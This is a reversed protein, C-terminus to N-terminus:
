SPANPDKRSRFDLERLVAIIGMGIWGLMFCTCRTIETRNLFPAASAMVLALWTRTTSNNWRSMPYDPTIFRYM